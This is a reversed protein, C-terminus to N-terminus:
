NRGRRMELVASMHLFLPCARAISLPNLNCLGASHSDVLSKTHFFVFYVTRVEKGQLLHVINCRARTWHETLM